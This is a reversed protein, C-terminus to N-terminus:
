AYIGDKPLGLPPLIAPGTNTLDYNLDNDILTSIAVSMKLGNPGYTM